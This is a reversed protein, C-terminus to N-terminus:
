KLKNIEKILRSKTSLNKYNKVGRKRAIVRAILEKKLPNFKKLEGTSLRLM